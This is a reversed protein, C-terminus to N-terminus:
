ARARARPAQPGQGPIAPPSRSPRRDIVQHGPPRRRSPDLHSVPLAAPSPGGAAAARPRAGRRVNSSAGPSCRAWNKSRPWSRGDSTKWAWTSSCGGDGVKLNSNRCPLTRREFRAPWTDTASERKEEASPIPGIGGSLESIISANQLSPSGSRALAVRPVYRETNRPNDALGRLEGAM